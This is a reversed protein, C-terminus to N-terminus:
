ARPGQGTRTRMQDESLGGHGVDRGRPEIQAVKRSVDCFLVDLLVKSSMASAGDFLDFEHIAKAEDLIFIGHVSTIDYWSEMSRFELAFSESDLKGTARAALIIKRARGIAVYWSWTTSDVTHLDCAQLWVGTPLIEFVKGSIRTLKVNDVGFSTALAIAFTKDLEFSL